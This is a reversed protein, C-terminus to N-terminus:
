LLIDTSIQSFSLSVEKITDLLKQQSFKENCHEGQDLIQCPQVLDHSEPATVGALHGFPDLFLEESVEIIMNLLKQQSFNEM